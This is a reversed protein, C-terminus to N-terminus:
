ANINGIKRPTSTGSNSKPKTVYTANVVYEDYDQQEQRKYLKEIQRQLEEIKDNLTQERVSGMSNRVRCFILHSFVKTGGTSILNLKLGNKLPDTSTSTVFWQGISEDSSEGSNTSISDLAIGSPVTASINVTIATTINMAFAMFYKGPPFNLTISPSSTSDAVYPIQFDSGDDWFMDTWVNVWSSTVTNTLRACNTVASTDDQNESFWFDVAYELHISGLTLTEGFNTSSFVQFVAQVEEDDQHGTSTFYSPQRAKMRSMAMASGSWVKTERASLNESLRMLDIASHKKADEVDYDVAMWFAGATSTSVQPTFVFKARKFLYREFMTSMKGLRSNTLKQPALAVGNYTPTFPSFIADGAKTSSSVSVYGLLEKGSFTVRNGSIRRSNRGKGLRLSSRPTRGRTAVPPGGRSTGRGFPRGRKRSFRGSRGRRGSSINSRGKPVVVTEKVSVNVPGRGKKSKRPMIGLGRLAAQAGVAIAAINRKPSFTSLNDRAFDLDARYLDEGQAYAKDHKQCTSDFEDIPSLNGNVSDQYKGNSYGPGCYNGHYKFSMFRNTKIQARFNLSDGSIAEHKYKQMSIIETMTASGGIAELGGPENTVLQEVQNRWQYLANFIKPRVYYSMRCLADLKQYYQVLTMNKRVVCANYNLRDENPIFAHLGDDDDVCDVLGAFDCPINKQIDDMKFGISTSWLNYQDIFDEDLDEEFSMIWDDGCSCYFSFQYLFTLINDYRSTDLVFVHITNQIKILVYIHRVTNIHCNFTFTILEGSKIGRFIAIIIAEHDNIPLVVLCQIVWRELWRIVRYKQVSEKIFSFFTHYTDAILRYECSSDWKEFDIRSYRSLYRMVKRRKHVGTGHFLKMLTDWGGYYPSWGGTNRTIQIPNSNIADLVPGLWRKQLTVTHQQTSNVSRIKNLQIKEVPRLEEKGVQDFFVAFDSDDEVGEIFDILSQRHQNRFDGKSVYKIKPPYGSSKSGDFSDIAYDISYPELSSPIYESMKRLLVEKATSYAIEDIDTDLPRVYKWFDKQISSVTPKAIAWGSKMPETGLNSFQSSAYDDENYKTYDSVRYKVKGIVQCDKFMEPVDSDSHPLIKPQVDSPLYSTDIINFDNRQYDNVKLGQHQVAGLLPLEKRTIEPDEISDLFLWIPIAVNWMGNHGRHLGIVKWDADFIVAGSDGKQTPITHTMINNQMHIFGSGLYYDGTDTHDKVLMYGVGTYHTASNIPLTPPVQGKVEGVFIDQSKDEFLYEDRPNIKGVMKGDFTAWRTNVALPMINALDGICHRCSFMYHRNERSIILAHAVTGYTDNMTVICSKIARKFSMRTKGLAAEPEVVHENGVAQEIKKAMIIGGTRAPNDAKKIKIIDSESLPVKHDETISKITKSISSDLAEPKLRGWIPENTGKAVKVYPIMEVLKSHELLKKMFTEIRHDPAKILMDIDAIRVVITDYNM